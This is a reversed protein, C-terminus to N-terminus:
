YLNVMRAIEYAMEFYPVWDGGSLTRDDRIFPHVELTAGFLGISFGRQEITFLRLLRPNKALLRVIYGPPDSLLFLRDDVEPKGMVARKLHRREGPNINWNIELMTNLASINSNTLWFRRNGENTLTLRIVASEDGDPAMLAVEVPFGRYEGRFGEETPEVSMGAEQLSALLIAQRRSFQHRSRWILLALGALAALLVAGAVPWYLTNSM